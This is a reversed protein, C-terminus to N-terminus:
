FSNSNDDDEVNSLIELADKLGAYVGLRERYSPYDPVPNDVFSRVVDDMRIILQKIIDNM